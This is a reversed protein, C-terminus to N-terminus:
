PATGPLNSGVALAADVVIRDLVAPREYPLKTEPAPHPEVATIEHM